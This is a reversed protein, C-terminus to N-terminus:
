GSRPFGVLFIINTDDHPTKNVTESFSWQNEPNSFFDHLTSLRKKYNETNYHTNEYLERFSANASSFAAFADNYRGLKDLVEGMLDERELVAEPGLQGAATDISKLLQLSAEFRDERAALRALLLLLRHDRPAILAARAAIKGASALRNQSELLD